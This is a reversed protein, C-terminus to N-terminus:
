AIFCSMSAARYQSRSATRRLGAAATTAQVPEFGQSRLLTGLVDQLVPEDDIVLVSGIGEVVGPLATVVQDAPRRRAMEEVSRVVLSGLGHGQAEGGPRVEM